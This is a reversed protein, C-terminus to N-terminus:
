LYIALARVLTPALRAYVLTHEATVRKEDM